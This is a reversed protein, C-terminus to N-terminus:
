VIIDCYKDGSLEWEGRWVRIHRYVDKQSTKHSKLLQLLVIDLIHYSHTFWSVIGIAQTVFPDLNQHTSYIVINHISWVVCCVRPPATVATQCVWVKHLNHRGKGAGAIPAQNGNKPLSAMRVQQIAIAISRMFAAIAISIWTRSGCLICMCPGVMLVSM